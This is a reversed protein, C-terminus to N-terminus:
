ESTSQLVADVLLSASRCLPEVAYAVNCKDTKREGRLVVNKGGHAPLTESECPKTNEAKVPQM